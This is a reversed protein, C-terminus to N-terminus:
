TYTLWLLRYWICFYCKGQRNSRKFDQLYIQMFLCEELMGLTSIKIGYPMGATVVARKPFIPRENKELRKSIM